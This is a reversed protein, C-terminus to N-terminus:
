RSWTAHECHKTVQMRFLFGVLNVLVLCILSGILVGVHRISDEDQNSSCTIFYHVIISGCM